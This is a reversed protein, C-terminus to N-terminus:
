EESLNLYGNSRIDENIKKVLGDESAAIRQNKAIFVMWWNGLRQHNKLDATPKLSECHNEVSKM